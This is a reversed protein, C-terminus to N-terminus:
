CNKREILTKIIEQTDRRQETVAYTIVGFVIVNLVLVALVLPQNKMADVVNGAVRAVQEQM